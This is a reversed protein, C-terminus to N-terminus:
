SGCDSATSNPLDKHSSRDLVHCARRGRARCPHRNLRAVALQPCLKGSAGRLSPPRVGLLRLLLRQSPQGTRRENVLPIRCLRGALAPRDPQQAPQGREGPVGPLLPPQGGAGLVVRATGPHLKWQAPQAFPPLGGGDILVVQRGPQQHQDAPIHDPGAQRPHQGAGVPVQGRHHSGGPVWVPEGPQPLQGVGSRCARGLISLDGGGPDRGQQGALATEDAVDGDPVAHLQGVGLATHM